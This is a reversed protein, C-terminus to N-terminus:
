QKTLTVFNAVPLIQEARKAGPCNDYFRWEKDPKLGLRITTPTNFRVYVVGEQGCRAQKGAYSLKYFVLDKTFYQGLITGTPHNRTDEIVTGNMDTILFRIVLRDETINRYGNRIVKTIIFTYNRSDVTGKWTGLYKTFLNNVDKLYTGVPIGNHANVYDICKEVPVITQAQSQLVMIFLIATILIKKM